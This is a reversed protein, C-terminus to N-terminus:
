DLPQLQEFKVLIFSHNSFLIDLFNLIVMPPLNYHLFYVNSLSNKYRGDETKSYYTCLNSVHCKYSSCLRAHCTVFSHIWNITYSRVVLLNIMSSAKAASVAIVGELHYISVILSGTQIWANETM